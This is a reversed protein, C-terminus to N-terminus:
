MQLNRCLPFPQVNIQMNTSYLSVLFFNPIDSKTLFIFLYIFLYFFLLLLLLLYIFLFFLFLFVGGGM